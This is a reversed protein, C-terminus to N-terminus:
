VAIDKNKGKLEHPMVGTWYHVKYRGGAESERWDYGTPDSAPRLYGKKRWITFLKRGDTLRMGYCVVGNTIEGHEVLYHLAKHAKPQQAESLTFDNGANDTPTFKPAFLKRLVDM